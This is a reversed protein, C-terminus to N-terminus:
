YVTAIRATAPPSVEPALTIPQRAECLFATEKELCSAGAGLDQPFTPADARRVIYLTGRELTDHPLTSHELDCDKRGRSVYASNSAM